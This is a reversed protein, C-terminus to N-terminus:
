LRYDKSDNNGEELNIVHDAPSDANLNATVYIVQNEAAIEKILEFISSTRIKDFDVFADDILIPLDILDSIEIVFALRLSIYLQVTTAKSLEHVDFKIRDKRTLKLNNKDFLIGVYNGNTLLEFYHEARKLMKPYRNETALDLMSHIWKSALKDALWQDYLDIMDIENQALDDVVKQYETNDFVQQRKTKISGMQRNLEDNQKYLSNLQRSVQELQSQLDNADAFQKLAEVDAGLISKDQKIKNVIGEKQLQESHLKMLNDMSDVSYNSLIANLDEELHAIKTYNDQQSQKNELNSRDIISQKTNLENIKSFYREVNSALDNSDNLLQFDNIQSKWQSLKEELNKLTSELRNQESRTDELKHIVNQLEQIRDVSLGQYGKNDTFSSISADSNSRPASQQQRWAYLIGVVFILGAGIRMAGSMFTALVLAVISVGIIPWNLNQNSVTETKPQTLQRLEDDTLPQMSDSFDRNSTYLNDIKIDNDNLQQNINKEQFQLDRITDKQSNLYDLDTKNTQYYNLIGQEDDDLRSASVSVTNQRLTKLEQDLTLSRDWDDQSIIKNLSVDVQSLDRYSVFRPWKENLRSLEDRKSSLIRETQINDQYQSQTKSLEENINSYAVQQNDFESKRKLLKDHTEICEALPQKRGRAKYVGESAQELKDANRLWEKSGVAGVAMIETELQDENLGYISMINEDNLVHSSEFDEKSFGGTIKTILSAPVEQDNRFLTVDGGNKGDIRRLTWLVDDRDIFQLEGGYNGGNKPKYQQFKDDGRASAFGFIISKIFTLLTTKGAENHGYIIQYDKKFNWEVDSWKGFGYIKVRTLKM